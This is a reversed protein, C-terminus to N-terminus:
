IRKKTFLLKFYCGLISLPLLLWDILDRGLVGARQVLFLRESELCGLSVIVWLASWSLGLLRFLSRFFKGLLRLPLFGVQKLFEKWLPGRRDAFLAQEGIEFFVDSEFSKM